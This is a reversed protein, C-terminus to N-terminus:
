MKISNFLELDNIRLMLDRGASPLRSASKMLTGATELLGPVDITVAKVTEGSLAQRVTNMSYSRQEDLLATLGSVVSSADDLAGALRVAIYVCLAIYAELILSREVMGWVKLMRRMVPADVPLALAAPVSCNELFLRAHGITKLTTMELPALAGRPLIAAPIFFLTSVRDEGPRRATLLLFACQTGGSIYKKTGNLVANGGNEVFTVPNLRDESHALAGTWNAPLSHGLIPMISKECWPSATITRVLVAQVIWMLSVGLDGAYLSIRTSPIGAATDMYLNLLPPCANAVEEWTNTREMLDACRAPYSAELKEFLPRDDLIHDM